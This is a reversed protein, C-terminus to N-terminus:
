ENDDEFDEMSLMNYRGLNFAYVHEFKEAMMMVGTAGSCRATIFSNCKAALAMELLYEKSRLYFDNERDAHYKNVFGNGGYKVYAKPLVVCNEGLINKCIQAINIDETALFIKNCKWERM